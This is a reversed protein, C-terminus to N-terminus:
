CPAEYKRLYKILLVLVKTIIIILLLVAVSNVCAFTLLYYTSSLASGNYHCLINVPFFVNWWYM